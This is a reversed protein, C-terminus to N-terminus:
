ATRDTFDKIIENILIAEKSGQKEIKDDPLIPVDTLSQFFNELTNGESDAFIFKLKNALETRDKIDELVGLSTMLTHKIVRVISPKFFKGRTKLNWRIKFPETISSGNFALKFNEQTIKDDPIVKNNKLIKYLKMTRIDIEDENKPIESDDKFQKTTNKWKFATIKERSDKNQIKDSKGSIDNKKKQFTPKTVASKLFEEAEQFIPFDTPFLFANYRKFLYVVFRYLTVVNQQYKSYEEKHKVINIIYVLDNIVVRLYSVIKKQNFDSSAIKERILKKSEKAGANLRQLLFDSFYEKYFFEEVDPGYPSLSFQIKRNGIMERWEEEVSINNTGITQWNGDADRYQTVFFNEHQNHFGGKLFFEEFFEISPDIIPTM